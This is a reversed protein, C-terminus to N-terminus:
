TFKSQITRQMCNTLAPWALRSWRVKSTRIACQAKHLTKYPDRHMPEGVYSGSLTYPYVSRLVAGVVTRGSWKDISTIRISINSNGNLKHSRTFHKSHLRCFHPLSSHTVRINGTSLTRHLVAQRRCIASKLATMSLM